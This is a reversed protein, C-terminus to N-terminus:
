FADKMARLKGFEEATEARMFPNTQKEKLITSPLTPKGQAQLAEAEAKRALLAQNDGDVTLAFAINDLTYEHAAYVNTDDPLSKLKAFSEFMQAPTGEFLRGCGVSFLTDGCFLAKDEKFWFAIHGTTHGPIFLIEAKSEGLAFIDGEKVKIDIFPIRAADGAYGVVECGTSKKVEENGDTHDWHHHTNLIYDLLWGRDKLRQLTPKALTPDIIATKGTAEDRLLYIYNALVELAPIFEIHLM